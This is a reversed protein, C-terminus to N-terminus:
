KGYAEKKKQYESEAIFIKLREKMELGM